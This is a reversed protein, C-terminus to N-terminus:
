VLQSLLTTVPVRVPTTFSFLNEGIREQRLAFAIQGESYRKKKM